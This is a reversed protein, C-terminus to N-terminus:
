NAEEFEGSFEGAEVIMEEFVGTTVRYAMLSRLVKRVAGLKGSFAERPLKQMEELDLPTAKSPWIELVGSSDILTQVWYNDDKPRDEGIGLKCLGTAYGALRVLWHPNTRVTESVPGGPPCKTALAAVIKVGDPPIAQSLRAFLDSEPLRALEGSRGEELWRDFVSSTPKDQQPPLTAGDCDVLLQRYLSLMEPDEPAWGSAKFRELLPFGYKMPLELFARFLRPWDEHRLASDIALKIEAETCESLGKRTGFFELCRRDGGRVVEMVHEQISADSREYALRLHQFEYDEKFYEDLQRTVFLFLAISEPDLPRMRQETAIKAALGRPERIALRCLADRAKADRLGRLTEEARKALVTDKDKTAVLLGQLSAPNQVVAPGKNAQLASLVRLDMPSEAIYGCDAIIEGLSQNRVAAWVECFANVAAPTRLERLAATATQQIEADRMASAEVLYPVVEAGGAAALEKCAARARAAGLLPVKSRLQTVLKDLQTNDM